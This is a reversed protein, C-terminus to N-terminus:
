KGCSDWIDGISSLEPHDEMWDDWLRKRRLEADISDAKAGGSSKSFFSWWSTQKIKVELKKWSEKHKTITRAIPQLLDSRYFFKQRVYFFVVTFCILGLLIPIKRRSLFSAVSSKPQPAKM